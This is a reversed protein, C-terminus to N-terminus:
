PFSSPLSPAAPGAPCFSFSGPFATNKVMLAWDAGSYSDHTFPPGPSGWVERGLVLQILQHPPWGAGSMPGLLWM